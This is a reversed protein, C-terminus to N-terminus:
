IMFVLAFIVSSIQGLGIGISYCATLEATRNLGSLTLVTAIMVAPPCMQVFVEPLRMLNFVVVEHAPFERDVLEALMSQFMFLFTLGMAAVLFNRVFIGSIYRALIRM